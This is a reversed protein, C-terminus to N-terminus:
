WTARAAVHQHDQSRAPCLMWALDQRTTMAEDTSPSRPLHSDPVQFLLPHPTRFLINVLDDDPDRKHSNSIGPLGAIILMSTMNFNWMDTLFLFCEPLITNYLFHLTLFVIYIFSTSFAPYGCEAQNSTQSLISLLCPLSGSTVEKM